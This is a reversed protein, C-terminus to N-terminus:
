FMIGSFFYLLITSLLLEFLIVILTITVTIVLYWGLFVMSGNREKIKKFNAMLLLIALIVYIVITLIRPSFVHILAEISQGEVLTLRVYITDIILYILMQLFVFLNIVSKKLRLGISNFSSNTAITFTIYLVIFKVFGLVGIFVNNNLVWSITWISISLTILILPIILKAGYSILKRIVPKVKDNSKIFAEEKRSLGKRKGLEKNLIEREEQSLVLPMTDSSEVPSNFIIDINDKNKEKNENKNPAFFKGISSFFEGAPKSIKTEFFGPTKEKEVKTDDVEIVNVNESKNTLNTDDFNESNFTDDVSELDQKHHEDKSISDIEKKRNIITEIKDFDELSLDGDEHKKLYSDIVTKSYRITKGKDAYTFDEDVTSEYEDDEQLDFDLDEKLDKPKKKSFINKFNDKFSHKNLDKVDVLDKESDKESTNNIDINEKEEHKSLFNEVVKDKEKQIEDDINGQGYVLDKYEEPQLELLKDEDEEKLFSKIKSFISPKNQVPEVEVNQDVLEDSQTEIIFSDSEDTELNKSEVEITLKDTNEDEFKEVFINENIQTELHESTESINSADTSDIEDYKISPKNRDLINKDYVEEERMYDLFRKFQSPGKKETSKELEETNEKLDENLSTDSEHKKSSPNNFLKKNIKIPEEKPYLEEYFDDSLNEEVVDEKLKSSLENDGTIPYKTKDKSFSKLKDLFSTKKDPINDLTEKNDIIIEDKLQVDTEINNKTSEARQKKIDNGCIHCFNSNEILETGCKNCIM